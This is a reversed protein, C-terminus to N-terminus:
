IIIRYHNALTVTPSQPRQIVKVLALKWAYPSLIRAQSIAILRFVKNLGLIFIIPIPFYINLSRTKEKFQPLFLTRLYVFFLLCEESFKRLIVV